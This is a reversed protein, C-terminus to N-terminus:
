SVLRQDSSGTRAIRWDGALDGVVNRVQLHPWLDPLQWLDGALHGLVHAIVPAVADSNGSHVKIAIGMQLKPIAICFVGQAGVKVAMKASAAQVVALDLRDRGSTLYTHQAMASGIRGLRSLESNEAMDVAIQRWARAINKLPLCFTPVGCGDTALGPQVGAWLAVNRYIERQLPHEPPRYDLPWGHKHSAALMFTHKGSCNNHLDSFQGDRRLIAEAAPPHAPPHTGCRLQAPDIRFKDLLDLVHGVHVPEANHSASGIALQEPSLEPDGLLEVSTALQFPKAASRWPTVVNDGIQLVTGNPDLAIASFPHRTEVFDGRFQEVIGTPEPRAM